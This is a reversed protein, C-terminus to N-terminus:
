QEALRRQSTDTVHSRGTDNAVHSARGAAVAVGLVVSKGDSDASDEDRTREGVGRRTTADVSGAGLHQGAYRSHVCERVHTLDRSSITAASTARRSSTTWSSSSTCVSTSHRQTVLGSAVASNSWGRNRQGLSSSWDSADIVTSSRQQGSGSEDCVTARGGQLYACDSTDSTSKKKSKSECDSARKQNFVCM